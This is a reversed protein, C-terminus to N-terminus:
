PCLSGVYLTNGNLCVRQMTATGIGVNLNGTIMASGAVYLTSSPISTGIGVNGGGVGFSSDGSAITRISGNVDLSKGPSLSGIGVNGYIIAGGNPPATTTYSDATMTGIGLNGIITLKAIPSITGIGLADYTGIGVGLNTILQSSGGGGTYQPVNLVNGTLTSAGSSGTTTLTLSTPITTASMWTGIGTSNSILINGSSPSTTLQLGSMRATGGIDLKQTPNVSSIGVNTNDDTIVSSSTVTTGATDYIAVRDATGSSVTGSGGAGTNDDEWTITGGTNWKPVQGNLPTDSTLIGVLYTNATGDYTQIAGRSGAWANNDAAINGFADTTPTAGNPVTISASGTFSMAGTTGIGIYNTTGDGIKTLNNIADVFFHQSTTATKVTFSDTSTSGAGNNVTLGKSITSVDAGSVTVSTATIGGSVDLKNTPVTTGVGVNAGLETINSLIAQKGNIQTQIASTVGKSYSLETLSPYTSTNLSGITGTSDWFTITNATGIGVNTIYGPNTFVLHSGATGSGSLPADATVATLYSGSAQKGNLQTQISSTTGKVYSLETLSPYTSTNLSGIANTDVWYSITNTTGIGVNTIAGVVCGSTSACTQDGTNTGSLNSATLTSSFRGTGAVDLTKGPTLSGIGVNAGDTYFLFSKLVNAITAKRNAPTGAPDNVTSLLDDTTPATDATLATIKSDVAWVNGTMLLLALIIKIM